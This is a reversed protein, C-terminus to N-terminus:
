VKESEALWRSLGDPTMLGSMVAVGAAGASLCAPANEPTIGGLAWVPLEVAACVDRLFDLGRAPVGAKCATPFVHGATLYTAGLAQARRAESVSHVSVGVTEFGRAGDPDAELIPLPLHIAPCGLRRAAAPYRHLVCPVDAKRCIALAQAALAEYDTESLDKERLVIAAPRAAAVRALQTLFDDPCLARNTICLIRDFMFTTM